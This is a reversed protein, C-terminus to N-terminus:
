AAAVLTAQGNHSEAIETGKLIMKATMELTDARSKMPTTGALCAIGKVVVKNWYYVQM